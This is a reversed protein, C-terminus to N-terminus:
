GEANEGSDTEKIEQKDDGEILADKYHKKLERIRKVARIREVDFLYNFFPRVIGLLFLVLLILWILPEMLLLALREVEQIM